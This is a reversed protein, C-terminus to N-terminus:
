VHSIAIFNGIKDKKFIDIVYMSVNKKVKYRM